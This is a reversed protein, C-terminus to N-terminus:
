LEGSRRLDPGEDDDEYTMGKPLTERVAKGLETLNWEFGLGDHNDDRREVLGESKLNDLLRRIRGVIQVRRTNHRSKVKRSQFIRINLYASRNMHGPYENINALVDDKTFDYYGVWESMELVGFRDYDLARPRIGM